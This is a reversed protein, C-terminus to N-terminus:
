AGAKRDDGQRRWDNVQRDRFDDTQSCRDRAVRVESHQAKNERSQTM